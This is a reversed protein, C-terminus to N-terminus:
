DKNKSHLIQSILNIQDDSLSDIKRAFILGLDTQRDNTSDINITIANVTQYYADMLSNEEYENLGLSQRISKVFELTPPRKGNEIASIYAPTLNLAAAMDKLLMGKDIRYRRLYKGLETLVSTVEMRLITYVM